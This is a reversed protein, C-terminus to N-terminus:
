PAKRYIEEFQKKTMPRFMPLGPVRETVPILLLYEGDKISFSTGDHSTVTVQSPNQFIFTYPEFYNVTTNIFLRLSEFNNNPDKLDYYMARFAEPRKEYLM